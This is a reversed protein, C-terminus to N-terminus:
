TRFPAIKFVTKGCVALCNARAMMMGLRLGGTVVTACAKAYRSSIKCVSGKLDLKVGNIVKYKVACVSSDSILFAASDSYM